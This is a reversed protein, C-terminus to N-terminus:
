GATVLDKLAEFKKPGIGPVRMLEDPSRFPGNAERDQVIRAATAPGIGPLSELETGGACNLDVLPGPPAGGGAQGAAGAVAQGGSQVEGQAPLRVQEGDRLVRALNVADPAASGLTGGAAQVAEGVRSGAPMRYIGPRRVCGAVHVVVSTPEASPDAAAEGSSPESERFTEVPPGGARTATWTVVGVAVALCAALVGAPVSGLGARAAFERLRDGSQRM